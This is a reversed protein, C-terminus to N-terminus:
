YPAPKYRMDLEYIRSLDPHPDPCFTLSVPTHDPHDPYFGVLEGAQGPMYFIDINKIGKNKQSFLSLYGPGGPGGRLFRGNQGSRFGSRVRVM